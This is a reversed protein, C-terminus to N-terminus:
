AGTVTCVFEFADGPGFVLPRHTEEDAFTFGDHVRHSLAISFVFTMTEGVALTIGTDYTVAASYVGANSTPASYEHSLDIVDGGNISLTSTQAVLFGILLGNNKTEWSQVIRIEAGAARNVHGGRIVACGFPSVVAIPHSLAQIVIEARPAKGPGTMASKDACATAVILLVASIAAGRPARLDTLYNRQM